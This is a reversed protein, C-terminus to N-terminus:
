LTSNKLSREFLKILRQSAAEDHNKAMMKLVELAPIEPNMLIKYSLEQSIILCKALTTLHPSKKKPFGVGDVAGHHQKIVIGIDIPANPYKSVLEAAKWAHDMVVREDRVELTKPLDEDFHHIYDQETLTIDCFFAAFVFRRVEDPYNKENIALLLQTGLYCTLEVLRYHFSFQLNRQLREVHKALKGGALLVSSSVETIMTESIQMVKPAIGLAQVLEKVTSFVQSRAKLEENPNQYDSEIKNLMNNILLRSFDKNNERLFYVENIGRSRFSEITSDDIEELTPIRKIYRDSSLKIFLDFPVQKFHYLATVPIDIWSDKSFESNVLLEKLHGILAVLESKQFLKLHPLTKAHGGVLIVHRFTDSASIIRSALKQLHDDGQTVDLLLVDVKPFIELLSEFDDVNEHIVPAIGTMAKLEFELLARFEPRPTYGIVPTTM